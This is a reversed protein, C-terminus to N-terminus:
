QRGAAIRVQGAAAELEPEKRGLWNKGSSFPGRWLRGGGRRSREVAGDACQARVWLETGKDGPM